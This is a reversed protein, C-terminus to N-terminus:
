LRPYNIYLKQTKLLLQNKIDVINPNEIGKLQQTITKSRKLSKTNKRKLYSKYYEKANSPGAIKDILKTAHLLLKKLRKMSYYSSEKVFGIKKYYKEFIFNILENVTM